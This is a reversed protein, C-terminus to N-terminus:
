TQQKANKYTYLANKCLTYESFFHIQNSVNMGSVETFTKLFIIKHLSNYM